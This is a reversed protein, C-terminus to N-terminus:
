SKSNPFLKQLGLRFLSRTEFGLYLGLFCLAGGVFIVAGIGSVIKEQGDPLLYNNALGLFMGFAFCAAWILAGRLRLRRRNAPSVLEWAKTARYMVWLGLGAAPLVTVAIIQQSTL